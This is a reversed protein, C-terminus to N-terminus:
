LISLFNLGFLHPLSFHFLFCSFSDLSNFDLSDCFFYFTSTGGHLSFGESGKEQALILPLHDMRYGKGLIGHFMPVLRPHALISKFVKSEEGWELCQGLDKRGPGQGYMKTGEAANRLAGSSREIMENEHQDIVKNAEEVEEKTLVNRVIIFGNLDFLFREDETMELPYSMKQQGVDFDETVNMVTSKLRSTWLRSTRTTHTAISKTSPHHHLFTTLSRSSWSRVFSLNSLLMCLVITSQM